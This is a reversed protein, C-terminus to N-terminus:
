WLYAPQLSVRRGGRMEIKTSDRQLRSQTFLETANFLSVYTENNAINNHLTDILVTM